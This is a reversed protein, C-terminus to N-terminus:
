NVTVTLLVANGDVSINHNVNQSGAPMVATLNKAVTNFTTGNFSKAGVAGRVLFDRGRNYGDASITHNHLVNLESSVALFLAGSNALSGNQRYVRFHNGGILQEICVGTQTNGFDERLEFIQPQPGNGDGLNAVQPSGRGFFGIARAYQLIGEDTLVEPSSSGAIIVNLPEGPGQDKADFSAFFSGNRDIPNFFATKNQARIAPLANAIRSIAGLATILLFSTFM